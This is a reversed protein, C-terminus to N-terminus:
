QIAGDDCLETDGPLSSISFIIRFTIGTLVSSPHRRLAGPLNFVATGPNADAADLVEM